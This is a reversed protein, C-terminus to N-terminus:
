YKESRIPRENHALNAWLLLSFIEYFSKNQQSAFNLSLYIKNCINKM